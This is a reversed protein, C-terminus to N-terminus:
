DLFVSKEVLKKINAEFLATRIQGHFFNYGVAYVIVPPKIEDYQQESCAFEWNSIENANTDPMFLGHGGIIVVDTRNLSNIYHKNVPATVKKINWSVDEFYKNFMDRVASSLVTDGANAASYQTVHSFRWKTAIKRAFVIKYLKRINIYFKTYIRHATERGVYPLEGTNHLM